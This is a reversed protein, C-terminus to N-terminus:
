ITIVFPRGLVFYCFAKETVCPLMLFPRRQMFCCFASWVFLEMSGIFLTPHCFAKKDHQKTSPRSKQHACWLQCSIFAEEPVLFSVCCCVFIPICFSFVLSSFWFLFFNMFFAVNQNSRLTAHTSQYLRWSKHNVHCCVLHHPSVNILKFLKGYLICLAQWVICIHINYM